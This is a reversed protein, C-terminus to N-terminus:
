TAKRSTMPGIKPLLVKPLIREAALDKKLHVKYYRFIQMIYRTKKRIAANRVKVPPLGGQM